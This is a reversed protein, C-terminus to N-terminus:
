KEEEEQLVEIESHVFMVRNNFKDLIIIWVLPPSSEDVDIVKGQYYKKNKLVIYVKKGIWYNWGVM